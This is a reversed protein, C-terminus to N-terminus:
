RKADAGASLQFIPTAEDEIEVVQSNVQSNCIAHLLAADFTHSVSRLLVANYIGITRVLEEIILLLVENPLDQLNLM